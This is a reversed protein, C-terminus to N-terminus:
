SGAGPLVPPAGSFLSDHFKVIVIAVGGAAAQQLLSASSAVFHEGTGFLITAWGVLCVSCAWPKRQKWAEPWPFARFFLVAFTLGFARAIWAM